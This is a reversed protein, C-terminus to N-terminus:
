FFRLVLTENGLTDLVLANAQFGIFTLDPGLFGNSVDILSDDYLHTQNVVTYM